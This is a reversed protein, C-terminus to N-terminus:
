KFKAHFSDPFSIFMLTNTRKMSEWGVYFVIEDIYDKWKDM